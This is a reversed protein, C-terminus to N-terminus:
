FSLFFSLSFSQLVKSTWGQYPVIRDIILGAEEAAQLWTWESMLIRDEVTLENRKYDHTSFQQQTLTTSQDTGHLSTTRILLVFRHDTTCM